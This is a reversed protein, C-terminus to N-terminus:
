RKSRAKPATMPFATERLKMIAEFAESTDYRDAIWQPVQRGQARAEAVWPRDAPSTSTMKETVGIDPENDM